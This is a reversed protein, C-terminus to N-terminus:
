TGPAGNGFPRQSQQMGGHEAGVILAPPAEGPKRLDFQVALRILEFRNKVDLKRMLAARRIHVTRLSMGLRSAITKNAMGLMTLELVQRESENLTGMVESPPAAENGSRSTGIEVARLVSTRLEEIAYPKQLFDVAGQKIARVAARVEGYGSIMVIGLPIQRALLEDMLELGSMGPLRLDILACGTCGPEIAALMQEASEYPRGLLGMSIVVAALSERTAQDDDVIFATPQSHMDGEEEQLSDSVLNVGDVTHITVVCASAFALCRGVFLAYVACGYHAISHM